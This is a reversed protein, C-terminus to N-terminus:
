LDIVMIKSLATFNLLNQYAENVTHNGQQMKRLVTLTEYIIMKSIILKKDEIKEMIKLAKEHNESKNVYYNVLFSTELFILFLLDGM